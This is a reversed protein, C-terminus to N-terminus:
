RTAAKAAKRRAIEDMREQREQIPHKPWFGQVFSDKEFLRTTLNKNHIVEGTSASIQPHIWHLERERLIYNFIHLQLRRLKMEKNMRTFRSILRRKGRRQAARRQQDIITRRHIEARRLKLDQKAARNVMQQEWRALINEDHLTKM